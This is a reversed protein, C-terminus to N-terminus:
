RSLFYCASFQMKPIITNYNPFYQLMQSKCSLYIINLLFTHQIIFGNQDRASGAAKAFGEGAINQFM